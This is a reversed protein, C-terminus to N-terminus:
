FVNEPRIIQLLTLVIQVVSLVHILTIMQLPSLFIHVLILVYDQLIIQMHTPQVVLLLVNIIIDTHAQTVLVYNSVNITPLIQLINDLVLLNAHEPLILQM